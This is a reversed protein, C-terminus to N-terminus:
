PRKTRRKPISQRATDVIARAGNALMRGDFSVCQLSFGRAAWSGSKAPDDLYIGMGVDQPVAERVRQAAAFVQPSGPPVDLSLALDYPGVFVSDIGPVAAIQDVRDLAKRGEIQIVVFAAESLTRLPEKLADFKTLPSFGRHGLPAFRAQEVIEIAREPTDVHPAMIGNAGIDLVKGIQGRDEGWTRVLAPLGAAHAAVILHELTSFDIASHELDLVVFDFGALSLTALCAPTPLEIVFTGLALGTATKRRLKEGLRLSETLRRTGAHDVRLPNKWNKATATKKKM